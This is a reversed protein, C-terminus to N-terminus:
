DRKKRVFLNISVGVQIGFVNHTNGSIKPNRRVNGGLDLVYISDFGEGLHKRVGDFAVQDLFSNNTVLAIIGEEGLSDSAWRLAKVYPDSLANKNTAKSDRAYTKSVRQDMIKYKRNKNNDNENVQGANYPPNGIIVFIPSQRQREVRSTNEPTFLSLQQEEALEFTDVLCIGEFPKYNGTLELYEHEINMSAIYYPLLMVENCHLENEYKYPLATKRIEQM